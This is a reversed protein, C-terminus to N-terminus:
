GLQKEPTFLLRSTSVFVPVPLKGYGYVSFLYRLPEQAQKLVNRPCKYEGNPLILSPCRGQNVMLTALGSTTIYQSLITQTKNSCHTIKHYGKERCKDSTYSYIEACLISEKYNIQYIYYEVRELM